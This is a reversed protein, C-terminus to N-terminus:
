HYEIPRDEKLFHLTKAIVTKRHNLEERYDILDTHAIEERLDSLFFELAEIIIQKEDGSLSFQIMHAEM